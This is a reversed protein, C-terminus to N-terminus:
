VCRYKSESNTPIETTKQYVINAEAVRDGKMKNIVIIVVDQHGLIQRLINNISDPKVQIYCM